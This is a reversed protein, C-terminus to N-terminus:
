NENKITITKQQKFNITETIKIKKYNTYYPVRFTVEGQQLSISKSQIEGSEEYLDFRKYLPHETYNITKNKNKDKIVLELHNAEKSYDRAQVNKLKSNVIQVNKIEFTTEKKVSDKTVLLTYFATQETDKTQVQKVKCSTFYLGTLLFLTAIRFSM